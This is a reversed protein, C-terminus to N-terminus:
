PTPEGNAVESLVGISRAAGFRMDRMEKSEVTKQMKGIVHVVMQKAREVTMNEFSLVESLVEADLQILSAIAVADHKEAELKEAREMLEALQALAKPYNTRAHAIFIGNGLTTVPADGEDEGVFDTGHVIVTSYGQDNTPTSINWDSDSNFEWPGDIARSCVALEAQIEEITLKGSM